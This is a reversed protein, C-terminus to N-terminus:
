RKDKRRSKKVRTYDNEDDFYVKKSPFYKKFLPKEIKALNM